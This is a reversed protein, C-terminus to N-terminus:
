NRHGPAPNFQAEGFVLYGNAPISTGSPIRFKKPTDRDDTLWWDGISVSSSTPNYLEITDRLPSASNTLAENILIPAINVAPDDAKPSGHVNASTRWDVGDSSNYKVGKPVLSYGSGDAAAPWPPDDDYDVSLVAGGTATVLTLKEGSNDLSGTFIGDQTVGPYRAAFSTANKVILKFAGPAVTTGAPFTYTLGSAFTLGGLDLSSTGTNKFEVFEYEGGNSGGATAPLPNYHIETIALPSFDQQVYFAAEDIASWITGSKTRVRILQSNNIVIGAGSTILVATPSVAGGFLRPDSGDTTYYITSGAPTGVSSTLNISTGSVVTGGHQSFVPPDFNPYWGKSRLQTLLVATRGPIYGSRVNDCAAVWTQRTFPTATKSDGWRASEGVIARDIASTRANFLSLATQPTLVGGNFCHKFTRDAFLTKFEQSNICQQFIYQPSSKSFATAGQAASSGAVWPGTRNENVNLLTHESDHMVFKFGGHLGTRNRFGFWNNPSQNSLFNSIPADLNGGWYAILMEDIVNVPDLLTAYAPNATGDPNRGLLHQYTSNNASETNAASLGTDALQWLAFWADTNGDTAEINYGLDPDVKIADYQDDTGGFYTQGMNADPREDINYLGWYQGNVYLHYFGGHSSVNGMALQMDRAIEDRVFIGNGGDGQFAWSYNQACRLDFKDFEKAGTPDNGFLPYKLKGAGYTERFFLRFAHKPNSASRSFGGRLRLGCNIQFDETTGDPHILEVSAPREWAFEDGSPNVYIGTSANFLNPLDTVVSFTPITKLDNQITGSYTPNNVIDPDMGFDLEQSNVVYKGTSSNFTGPWTTSAQAAGSPNTITPPTGTPQQTIVDSTFIYTQTITESPDFGAKFARYRLTTTKNIPIPSGYTASPGSAEVPTSGDFTYRITAGVTGCALTVNQATSYFGRQVSAVVPAVKNYIAATNFGFPTATQFYQPTAGNTVTYQAVEPKILFDGNSAAQNLGHVALVNTGAVLQGRFPTLDITEPQKALFSIRDGSAVSTNTPTGAPANRRAVEQGNLYAIYGDDFRVPMALSTVAAPDSVSFAYRVYCSSKQPSADFMAAKVNAGIYPGYGAGGSGVALSKVSLGGGATNGILKFTSDWVTTSGSRASVEGGSGGGNEFVIARIEYDGAVPFNYTGLTDGIGRLGPFSLVTTYSGGIPRIQLSCGDDSSVCFTWLGATPVTITGTAEVVYNDKDGSSLAPPNNEPTYHGPSASNDFNVVPHNVSQVSTQLSPTVIVAEAQALSGVGQNSFYTKLAFGSVTSEFGVGNSGATWTADNFLRATWTADDPVATTPVLYKLAASPGVFSQTTVTQSLGFPKDTYQAPYPNYEHAISGDSKVLALYGGDQSLKFNTHLPAGPNARDKNSAFVLLFGKPALDVAPFVWKSLDSSDDTLRWGALNVTTTGSNYIEMWDAHEGDEDVLGADNSTLFESIFVPDIAWAFSSLFVCALTAFLSRPHIVKRPFISYSACICRAHFSALELPNNARKGTCM